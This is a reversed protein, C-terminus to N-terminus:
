EKKREEIYPIGEGMNFAIQRQTDPNWLTIVGESVYIIKEVGRREEGAMIYECSVALAIALRYLIDASFGKKGMEIEYLFKESVDIKEALNRRTYSRIERLGRIRQGVLKNSM